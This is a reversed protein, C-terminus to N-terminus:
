FKSYTTLKKKWSGLRSAKRYGLLTILYRNQRYRIENKYFPDNFHNWVDEKTHFWGCWFERETNNNLNKEHLRAMYMMTPCQKLSGHPLSSKIKLM